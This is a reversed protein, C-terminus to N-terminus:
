DDSFDSDDSDSNSLGKVPRLTSEQIIQEDEEDEQYENRNPLMIRTNSNKNHEKNTERVQDMWEDYVDVAETIKQIAIESSQYECGICTVKAILKKGNMEIKIGDIKNCFPCEFQKPLRYFKKQPPPLSSKKKGM